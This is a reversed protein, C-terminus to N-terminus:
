RKASPATPTEFKPVMVSVVVPCIVMRIMLLPLREGYSHVALNRRRVKEITYREAM